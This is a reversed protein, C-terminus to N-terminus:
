VRSPNNANKHGALVRNSVFVFVYNKSTDTCKMNSSISAGQAELMFVHIM